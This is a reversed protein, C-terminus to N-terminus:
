PSVGNCVDALYPCAPTILIRTLALHLAESCFLFPSVAKCMAAAIPRLFSVFIRSSDPHSLSDFFLCPSVLRSILRLFFRTSMMVMRWFGGGRSLWSSLCSWASAAPRAFPSFFLSFVDVDLLSFKSCFLPVFRSFLPAARALLPFSPRDSWIVGVGLPRRITAM